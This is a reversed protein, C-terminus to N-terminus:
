VFKTFFNSLLIQACNKKLSYFHEYKLFYKCKFFALFGILVYFVFVFFLFPFLFVSHFVLSFGGSGVSYFFCFGTRLRLFQALPGLGLNGTLPRPTNRAALPLHIPKQCIRYVSLDTQVAHQV